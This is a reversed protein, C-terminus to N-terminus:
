SRKSKIKRGKRMSGSSPVNLKV